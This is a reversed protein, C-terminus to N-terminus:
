RTAVALGEIRVTKNSSYVLIKVTGSRGSTWTAIPIVQKKKLSTSSLSVTKYLTRGLYVRVTGHGVGKSAVLSLKRMGTVSRTLTKGKTKTESYTNLYYGSATKKVWGSSHTLSTNNVPVSFTRSAPSADANGAADTAAVTFVHSGATLRSLGLSSSGCARVAADLKCAYVSGVESSAYRMTTSTALLWGGNTPGATITTQPATLDIAWTHTAPTPDVNGATDVARVQFSYSGDALSGYDRPSTCPVFAHSQSPGTLACQFSSGGTNSFTFHASRSDVATLATDIATEPPLSDITWSRVAPVGDIFSGNRARVRFTHPGDGLGSYSQIGSTAPTTGCATFAAGDLSCEFANGAVTSFGFTPSRDSVLGSPGGTLATDVVKHTISAATGVNGSQDTGRVAFTHDGETAFTRAVGSSCPVTASGDVSCQSGSLFENASWTFTAGRETVTSTTASLGSITPGVFDDFVARVNAGVNGFLPATVACQNGSPAPCGVWGAFRWHGGPTASPSAVLVLTVPGGFPGTDFNGSPCGVTVSDSQQFSLCTYAHSSTPANTITGAGTIAATLTVTAAQAPSAAVAQGVIAAVLGLLMLQWTRRLQTRARSVPSVHM